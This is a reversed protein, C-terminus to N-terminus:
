LGRPDACLSAWMRTLLHEAGGTGHALVSPGEWETSVLPKKEIEWSKCWHGSPSELSYRESFHHVYKQTTVEKSLASLHVPRRPAAPAEHRGGGGSSPRERDGGPLWQDKATDGSGTHHPCHGRTASAACTGRRPPQARRVRGSVTRTERQHDPHESRTRARSRRQMWPHPAEGQGQPPGGLKRCREGPRPGATAMVEAQDQASSSGGM